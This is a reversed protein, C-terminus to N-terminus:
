VLELKRVIKTVKKYAPSNKRAIFQVIRLEEETKAKDALVDVLVPWVRDDDHNERRYREYVVVFDKDVLTEKLFLRSASNVTKNRTTDRVARVWFDVNRNKSHLTKFLAIILDSRIESNLCTKLFQQPTFTKLWRKANRLDSLPLPGYDLGEVFSLFYKESM